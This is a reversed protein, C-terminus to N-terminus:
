CDWEEMWEPGCPPSRLLRKLKYAQYYLNRIEERTTQPGGGPHCLHRGAPGSMPPWALPRPLGHM